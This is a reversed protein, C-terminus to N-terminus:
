LYTCHSRETNFTHTHTHTHTHTGVPARHPPPSSTALAVATAHLLPLCHCRQKANQTCQALRGSGVLSRVIAWTVCLGLWIQWIGAVSQCHPPSTKLE